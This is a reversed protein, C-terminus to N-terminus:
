VQLWQTHGVGAEGASADQPPRDGVGPFRTFSDGSGNRLPALSKDAHQIASRFSPATPEQQATPQRIRALAAEAILMASEFNGLGHQMM